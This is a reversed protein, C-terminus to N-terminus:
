LVWIPVSHGREFWVQRCQLSCFYVEWSFIHNEPPRSYTKQCCNCRFLEATARTDWAWLGNGLHKLYEETERQVLVRNAGFIMQGVHNTRTKNKGFYHRELLFVDQLSKSTKVINSAGESSTTDKSDNFSEPNFDAM